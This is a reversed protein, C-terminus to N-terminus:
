AEPTIACNCTIYDSFPYIDGIQLEQHQPNAWREQQGVGDTTRTLRYRVVGGPFPYAILGCTCRPPIVSWWGRQATIIDCSPDHEVRQVIPWVPPPLPPLQEMAKRLDEETLSELLKKVDDTLLGPGTTPKPAEKVDGRLKREYEAIEEPTGELVEVTGDPKPISKKM